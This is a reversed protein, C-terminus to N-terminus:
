NTLKVAQRAALKWQKKEKVWTQLVSLKLAATTGDPKNETGSIIHRAVITKAYAQTFLITTQVNAYTSKNALVNGMMTVRDEVNGNSHGYNIVRALLNELALSDKQIFIAKNLAAIQQHIVTNNTQASVVTQALCLCLIIGLKYM